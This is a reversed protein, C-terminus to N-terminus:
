VGSMWPIFNESFGSLATLAPVSTATATLTVDWDAASLFLVPSDVGSLVGTRTAGTRSFRRAVRSFESGIAGGGLGAVREVVHVTGSLEGLARGACKSAVSVTRGMTCAERRSGMGESSTAGLAAPGSLFM